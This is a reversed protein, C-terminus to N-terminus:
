CISGCPQKSKKSKASIPNRENGIKITRVLHYFMQFLAIAGVLVLLILPAIISFVTFGYSSKQFPVSNQLRNTALGVQMATLVLAIYGIAVSIPTIYAHLFEGFTQYTGGDFGRILRLRRVAYIKNLRSLRLEGFWYRKNVNKPNAVNNQFLEEVFRVWEEWRITKPLLYHDQAIAFDSEYQVLAMYSFLFGRICEYIDNKCSYSKEKGCKGHGCDVDCAIHDKLFQLKLMYCPLPKLHMRLSPEWVMHMHIREDAVIQRSLAMQVNLPRPPLPLGALWLCRDIKNLREVSFERRLFDNLEDLKPKRLNHEEDRFSAPFNTTDVTKNLSASDLGSINRNFPPLPRRHSTADDTSELPSQAM